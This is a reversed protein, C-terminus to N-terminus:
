PLAINDIITVLLMGIHILYFPLIQQIYPRNEKNLMYFALTGFVLLAQPIIIARKVKKIASSCDKGMVDIVVMMFTVVGLLTITLATAGNNKLDLKFHPFWDSVVDNQRLLSGLLPLECLVYAVTNM